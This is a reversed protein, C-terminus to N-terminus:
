PSGTNKSSVAAASNQSIFQSTIRRLRPGIVAALVSKLSDIALFPIMGLEIARFFTMYQGFYFNRLLYLYSVGFAYVVLQGALNIPLAQWLKLNGRDPDARDCLWGVLGAALLMGLLFGFSPQLVYAIGGGAAFVPLGILGLLIYLAQSLMARKAGILVGALLCVLSQLTFPIALVTLSLKGGIITLVAFLAILTMDRVSLKM